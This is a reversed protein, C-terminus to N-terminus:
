KRKRFPSQPEDPNYFDMVAHLLDSAIVGLFIIWFSSSLQPFGYGYVLRILLPIWFLSVLRIATSLLPFHSLPSRHPILKAYLWWYFRWFIRLLNFQGFLSLGIYGGDVDLDPSLWIGLLVGLSFYLHNWQFDPVLLIAVALGLSASRHDKGSSM